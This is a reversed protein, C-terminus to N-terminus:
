QWNSEGEGEQKACERAEALRNLAPRPQVFVCIRGYLLLRLGTSYLHTLHKLRCGQPSLEFQSCIFSNLVLLIICHIASWIVVPLPSVNIVVYNDHTYYESAPLNRFASKLQNCFWCYSCVAKKTSKIKLMGFMECRVASGIILGSLFLFVDKTLM